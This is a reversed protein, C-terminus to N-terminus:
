KLTCDTTWKKSRQVDLKNNSTAFFNSTFPVRQDKKWSVWLTLQKSKTM